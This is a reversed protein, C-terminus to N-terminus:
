QKSITKIYNIISVLGNARGPTLHQKLGIADFVNLESKLIEDTSQHNYLRLILSVIGTVILSDSTAEISLMGNIIEAHVWVNSQCGVILYKDTKYKPNLKPLKKGLDIIYAYRDMWDDFMEFEEIIENEIEQIKKSM